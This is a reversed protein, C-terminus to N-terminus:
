VAGISKLSPIVAEDSVSMTEVIGFERPLVYRVAGQRAKKDSKSSQLIADKSVGDALMTPLGSRAILAVLREHRAKDWGPQMTLALHSEAVMGLAVAEGHKIAGYGAVNEIAHGVTHGFNLIERLGGEREDQRVVDAKIECCRAIAHQLEPPSGDALNVINKEVWDFFVADYIIGYKIIEALASVYEERPLTKLVDCDILVLKPQWFAGLLNKGAAHNIGTKGGVSSDVMALLSTPVQILDIGRLYSAAGFGALDGIVGGGLAVLASDRGYRGGALRDWIAQLFTVHKTQEGAPLVMLEADLGEAALSSRLISGHPEEVNEDCAILLRRSRIVTGVHSAASTLNGTGIIIDYERGPLAVKVCRLQDDNAM